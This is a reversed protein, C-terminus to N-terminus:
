GLSKGFVLTEHQNAEQRKQPDSVPFDLLFDWHIVEKRKHGVILMTSVRTSTGM